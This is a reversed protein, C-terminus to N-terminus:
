SKPFCKFLKQKINTITQGDKVIQKIGNSQGKGTIKRIM